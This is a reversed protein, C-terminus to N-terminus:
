NCVIPVIRCSREADDMRKVREAAPLERQHGYPVVPTLIPNVVPVLVPPQAANRGTPSIDNRGIRHHGDRGAPRREAQLIEQFQYPKQRSQLLLHVM